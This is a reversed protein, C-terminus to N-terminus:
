WSYRYYYNDRNRSEGDENTYTPSWRVVLADDVDDEPLGYREGIEDVLDWRTDEESWYTTWQGGRNVRVQSGRDTVTAYAAVLDSEWGNDYGEDYWEPVYGYGYHSDYLGYRYPSSTNYSSYSTYGGDNWMYHYASDSNISQRIHISTDAARVGDPILFLATFAFMGLGVARLISQKSSLTHM